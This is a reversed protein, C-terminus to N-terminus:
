KRSKSKPQVTAKKKSKAVKASPKAKEKSAHDVPFAKEPLFARPSVGFYDALANIHNINYKARQNISEVDSIFSRGVGIINAIDQQSLGRKDRLARVFDIVYQDIPTIYDQQRM